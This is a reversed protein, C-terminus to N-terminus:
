ILLTLVKNKEKTSISEMYCHNHEIIHNILDYGFIQSVETISHQIFNQFDFYSPFKLSILNKTALQNILNINSKLLHLLGNINSYVRIYYLITGKILNLEKFDLPRKKHFILYYIILNEPSVKILELYLNNNNFLSKEKQFNIKYLKEIKDISKLSILSKCSYFMENKTDFIYYFINFFNPHDNLYDKLFIFDTDNFTIPCLDITIMKSFNYFNFDKNQLSLDYAKKIIISYKQTDM